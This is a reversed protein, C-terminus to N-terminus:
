DVITGGFCLDFILCFTGGRLLHMTSIHYSLKVNHGPLCHNKNDALQWQQMHAHPPMPIDHYFQSAHMNASKKWRRVAQQRARGSSLPFWIQIVTDISCVSALLNAQIFWHNEFVYCSIQWLYSFLMLLSALQDKLKARYEASVFPM